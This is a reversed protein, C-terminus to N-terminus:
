GSREFVVESELIGAVIVVEVLTGSVGNITHVISFFESFDLYSFWIRNKTLNRESIPVTNM